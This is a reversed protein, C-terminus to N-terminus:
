CMVSESQKSNEATLDNFFSITSPVIILVIMTGIIPIPPAYRSKEFVNVPACKAASMAPKAVGTETELTGIACSIFPSVVSAPWSTMQDVSVDAM